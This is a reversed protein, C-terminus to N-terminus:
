RAFVCGKLDPRHPPLVGDIGHSSSEEHRGFPIHIGSEGPKGLWLLREERFPRPSGEQRNVPFGHLGSLSHAAPITERLPYCGQAQLSNQLKEKHM